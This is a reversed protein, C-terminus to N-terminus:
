RVPGADLRYDKLVSMIDPDYRMMEGDPTASMIRHKPRVAYRVALLRTAFEIDAPVSAFGWEATVAVMPLGASSPWLHDDDSASNRAVRVLTRWPHGQLPTRAVWDDTTLSRFTEGPNPGRRIEVLTPLTAMDGARLWTRCRQPSFLRREAASKDFRRRCFRDVAATAANLAGDVLDNVTEGTGTNLDAAVASRTTYREDAAM